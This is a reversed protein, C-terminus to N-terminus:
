VYEVGLAKLWEVRDADQSDLIRRYFSRDAIGMGDRKKTLKLLAHKLMDNLSWHLARNWVYAYLDAAQLAECKASDGFSHLGLRKSIEPLGTRRIEEFTEHARAEITLRSDFVFNVTVSPPSHNLAETIIYHWGMFYPQKPAGSSVLTSTVEVTGKYPHVRNRRVAGTLRRREELTLEQFAEVHFAFGIPTLTYRNITRLLEELFRMAKKDSWGHYPSKKSRWSAKQFFDIAHFEPVKGLASRWDRRFLKWQRPSAVYGLVACFKSGEQTGTEDGYALWEVVVILHKGEDLPHEGRSSRCTAVSIM